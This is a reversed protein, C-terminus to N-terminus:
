SLVNRILPERDVVVSVLALAGVPIAREPGSGRTWALGSPSDARELQIIVEYLPGQQAFAGAMSPDGTLQVLRSQAVPIEGVSQVEARVRGYRDPSVGNVTVSAEQGPQLASVAGAPFLGVAVVEQDVPAIVFLASGAAAVERDRAGVVVVTGDIPSQVQVPEPVGPVLVAALTQGETVTDGVEVAVGDLQGPQPQSVTFLGEPPLIVAQSQVTVVRDVVMTWVVGVLVVAALAAVGWWIRRPTQRFLHDIRDLPSPAAGIAREAFPAPPPPAEQVPEPALFEADFRDLADRGRRPRRTQGAEETAVTEGERGPESV